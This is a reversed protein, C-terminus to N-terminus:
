AAQKAGVHSALAKETKDLRAEIDELISTARAALAAFEFDSLKKM